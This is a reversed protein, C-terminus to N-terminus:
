HQYWVESHLVGTNVDGGGLILVHPNGSSDVFYATSHNYPDYGGASSITNTGTAGGFPEVSGDTKITGYRSENNGPDGSYLGGTIVINSGAVVATFKERAKIGPDNTTWTPNVLSGDQLNIQNYYVTPQSSASQVNTIPDVAANDGGIVYLYGASAVLQHYALKDPLSSLTQWDELTGDSKIKASYVTSVPTGTSDNGGAVYIRGHFIVAGEAFLAQPLATTSAWTGASGSSPITGDDNISAYYVTSTANGSGDLGGLLYVYNGSALSNFSNAIVAASFGRPAPLSTTATWAAPIAGSANDMKNFYVTAKNDAASAATNGGIAYIYNDAVSTISKFVPAIVTPFGQQAVPLSSTQTWTITSPSFAVSAVILFNVANSTGGPTTVTVKYITGATLNPVKGKIFINSWVGNTMDATALIDNTTADRFDVSYGSTPVTSLDGFGNGDIVFISGVTGSGSIGGNIGTISPVPMPGGGGGGGGCGALLGVISLVLVWLTFFRKMFLGNFQIM